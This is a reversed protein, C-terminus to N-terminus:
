KLEIASMNKRDRVYLRTGALTPGTWANHQLVSAKSTVQLGQPTATALAVDGDEEVVILTGGANLVNAKSLNRDRWAVKGTKVEVATFPAPGFDGSSGYIHDGIRIASSHHLRMQNNAWLEKVSTANGTQTLQLARSGGSYASSIFLINDDGWVPLSINLGWNTSHPHSWLLTGNEPNMGVVKDGAFYLLQDQTGLRIVTPSSPSPMFDHKKWVISGDKPNLAVVSAGAGGTTFILTNRYALPSCAYGRDPIEANVERLLEKTWLIKGTKKDFAHIKGL